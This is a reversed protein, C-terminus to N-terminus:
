SVVRRSNVAVEGTSPRYDAIVRVTNSGRDDTATSELVLKTPAADTPVEIVFGIAAASVGGHLRAVWAGGRLAAAKQAPVTEFMISSMPAWLQGWVAIEKQAGPDSSLLSTGYGPGAHDAGLNNPDIVQMGITRQTGPLTRGAIEFGSNARAHIRTSGSTYLTAGSPDDQQRVTDCPTNGIVPYGETSRQGITMVRGQLSIEGVDHFHYVGSRFYNRNGLNPAQNYRGPEFVRCGNVVTYDDPSRLELDQYEPHIAPTPGALDRWDRKICYVGRTTPDFLLNSISTSSRAYLAEGACPGHDTYWLDGEAITTQQQFQVRTVDHVYVPGGIEPQGGLTFRFTPSGNGPAGEGTM